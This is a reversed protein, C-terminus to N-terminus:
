NIDKRNMNRLYQTIWLASYLQPHGPWAAGSNSNVVSGAVRYIVALVKMAGSTETLIM